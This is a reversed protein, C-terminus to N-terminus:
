GQNKKAPGAGLSQSEAWCLQQASFVTHEPGQPSLSAQLGRSCWLLHPGGLGAQPDLLTSPGCVEAPVGWLGM